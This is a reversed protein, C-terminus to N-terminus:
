AHYFECQGLLFKELAQAYCMFGMDNPHLYGDEYFDAFHPVFDISDIVTINAYRGCVSELLMRFEGFPLKVTDAPNGADLRFIPLIVYIHRSPYIRTLKDFYAKATSAIDRGLKWDNTGYAVFIEDPEFNLAEDLNDANFVDGGIAQNLSGADFRRALINAYTLSSFETTCGHTISDGLFLFSRTKELKSLTSGDDICFNKIGAAFLCPFYIRIKKSGEGLEFEIHRQAGDEIGDESFHFRLVDDVYVDFAYIHKSSAEYLVADFSLKLTDTCFGLVMGATAKSRKYLFDNDALRESQAKTFRKPFLYGDSNEFRVAGSIFKELKDNTIVM